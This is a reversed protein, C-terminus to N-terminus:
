KNLLSLAVLIVAKQRKDLSRKGEGMAKLDDKAAQYKPNAELEESATKMAESAEVVRRKLDEPGMGEMDKITDIGLSEYAKTLKKTSM